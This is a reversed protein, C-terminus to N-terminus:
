GTKPAVSRALLLELHTWIDAAINNFVFPMIFFGFRRIEPAVM